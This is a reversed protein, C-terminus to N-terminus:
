RVLEHNLVRRRYVYSIWVPIGTVDNLWSDLRDVIAKDGHAHSLFAHFRRKHIPLTEM